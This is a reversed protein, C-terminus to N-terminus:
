YVDMRPYGFIVFYVQWVVFSELTVFKYSIMFIWGTKRFVLLSNQSSLALITETDPTPKEV